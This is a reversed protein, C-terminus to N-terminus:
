SPGWPGGNEMVSQIYDNLIQWMEESLNLFELGTHYILAQEGDPQTERRNVISRVVRCKFSLKKGELDLELSSTTGPRVVQAHEILAGGLSINVLSADHVATVRGKTKGGVVFRPHQRAKQQGQEM